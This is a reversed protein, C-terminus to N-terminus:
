EIDTLIDPERVQVQEIAQRQLWSMPIKLEGCRKAFHQCSTYNDRKCMRIFYDKTVEIGCDLIYPCDKRKFIDQYAESYTSM